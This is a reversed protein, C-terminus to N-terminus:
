RSLVWGHGNVMSWGLVFREWCWSRGNSIIVEGVSLVPAGEPGTDSLLAIEAAGFQRSECVADPWDADDHGEDRGDDGGDDGNGGDSRDASSNIVFGRSPSSRAAPGRQQAATPASIQNWTKSTWWIVSYNKCHNTSSCSYQTIGNTCQSQNEYFKRDRKGFIFM